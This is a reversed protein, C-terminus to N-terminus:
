NWCSVTVTMDAGLRALTNRGLAVSRTSITPVVGAAALAEGLRDARLALTVGEPLARGSASGPLAMGLVTGNTDFVPGGAESDATALDLRQVTEEGNIGTIEALTGFAMSASGLAGEFPFGAVAVEARLRAPAIAMEAFALPALARTPSLIAMGLTTDQFAIEAPYADDILVQECQGAVAETTTMVHGQADIYFGSRVLDPRRVDLGSVLDIDQGTGDPVAGPDLAGDLATFSEQMMPLVRAM